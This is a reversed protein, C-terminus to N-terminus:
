WRSSHQFFSCNERCGRNWQLYCNSRQGNGLGSHVTYRDRIRTYLIRVTSLYEANIKDLFFLHYSLAIFNSSGLKRTQPTVTM